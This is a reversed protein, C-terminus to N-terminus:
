ILTNYLHLKLNLSILNSTFLKKHVHFAMNGASKREKIEGEISNGTNVVAGL